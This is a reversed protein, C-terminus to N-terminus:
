NHATNGGAPNQQSTYMNLANALVVGGNLQSAAIQLRRLAAKKALYIEGCRAAKINKYPKYGGNDALVGDILIEANAGSFPVSLWWDVAATVTFDLVNQSGELVYKGHDDKLWWEPHAAFTQNAEYCRLGQQDTAWYFLVKLSPKLAKLQAATQYIATETKLGVNSGVCKELSVIENHEAVFSAQTDTLTSYGFDSFWMDAGTEWGHRWRATTCYRAVDDAGCGAVRLAHQNEGTCRECADQPRDRGGGPERDNLTTPCRSSLASACALSSVGGGSEGARSPQLAWCSISAVVAVRTLLWTM